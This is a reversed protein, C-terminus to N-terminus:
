TRRGLALTQQTLHRSLKVVALNAEYARSAAILDVMEEHININPLAVWGQADAAPDSPNYVVRPPRLDRDVRAVTLAQPSPEFPHAGPQANLVSDFHVVKRQYPKGDLHRGVNANAINESAVDIRVREATLASTTSQVGALLNIM